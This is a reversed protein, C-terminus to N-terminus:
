SLLPLPLSLSLSLPTGITNRMFVYFTFFVIRRSYKTQLLYVFARGKGKGGDGEVSGERCPSLTHFQGQALGLELEQEQELVLELGLELVLGLVLAGPEGRKRPSSPACAVVCLPDCTRDKLSVEAM